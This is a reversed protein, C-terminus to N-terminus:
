SAQCHCHFRRETLQGYKFFPTFTPSKSWNPVLMIVNGIGSTSASILLVGFGRIANLFGHCAFEEGFRLLVECKQELVKDQLCGGAFIGLVAVFLCVVSAM